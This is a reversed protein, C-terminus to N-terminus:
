TVRVMPERGQPSIIFRGRLDVAMASWSGDDPGAALVQRADFGPAVKLAVLDSPSSEGRLVGLSASVLLGTLTLIRMRPSTTSPQSSGAHALILGGAARRLPNGRCRRRLARASVAM